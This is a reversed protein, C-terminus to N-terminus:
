KNMKAAQETKIRKNRIRKTILSQKRDVALACRKDSRRDTPQDFGKMKVSKLFCVFFMFLIAVAVAVVVFVGM